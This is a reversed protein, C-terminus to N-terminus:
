PMELGQLKVTYMSNDRNLDIMLTEFWQNHAHVSYIATLFILKLCNSGAKVLTQKWLIETGNLLKNQGGFIQRFVSNHLESNRLGSKM